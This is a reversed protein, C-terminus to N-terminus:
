WDFGLTIISTKDVKNHNYGNNPICKTQPSSHYILRQLIRITTISKHMHQHGEKDKLSAIHTAYKDNVM